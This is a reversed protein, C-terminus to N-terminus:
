LLKIYLFYLVALLHVSIDLLPVYEYGTLSSVFYIPVYKQQLLCYLIINKESCFNSLQLNIHSKHGDLLLIVPFKISNELLWPYFCNSIYEFFTESVMWGTDSRGVFFDNPISFAVDRPIRKFPLVVMPPVSLGSASFNCLVTISQKEPGSSIEYFNKYSKPGLLKGSKPCFQVGMEDANYIRTSDTLVEEYNEEKLFNRFDEFWKHISEKTVSARAKSIIETNRKKIAPHRNLFLQLWKKGPRGDTFPTERNTELIVKQVSDLVENPHMPFGLKAKSLIWNAIKDEEGKNLVTNPGMRREMPALGRVKKSLTAKPVGYKQFASNLSQSGLRVCEIAKELEEESYKFRQYKKNLEM